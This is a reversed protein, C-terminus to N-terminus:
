NLMMESPGPQLPNKMSRIYKKRSRGRPLPPVNYNESTELFQASSEQIMMLKTSMETNSAEQARAGKRRM